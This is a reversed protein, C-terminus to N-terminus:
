LVFHHIPIELTYYYSTGSGDKFDDENNKFFERLIWM